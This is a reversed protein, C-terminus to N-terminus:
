CHARNPFALPVPQRYERRRVGASKPPVTHSRRTTNDIRGSRQRHQTCPSNGALGLTSRRSPWRRHTHTADTAGIRESAGPRASQPPLAAVSTPKDRCPPLPNVWVPVEAQATWLSLRHHRSRLRPRGAANCLPASALNFVDEKSLYPARTAEVLRGRGDGWLWPREALSVSACPGVFQLPLDFLSLVCPRPPGGPAPIRTPRLGGRGDPPAATRWALRPEGVGGGPALPHPPNGCPLTARPKWRRGRGVKLGDGGCGGCPAGDTVVWVPSPWWRRPAVLSILRWAPPRPVCGGAGEVCVIRPIM